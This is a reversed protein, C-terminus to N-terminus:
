TEYLGLASMPVEITYLMEKDFGMEYKLMYKHQRQIFLTCIILSINKCRLALEDGPM